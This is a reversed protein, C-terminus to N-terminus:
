NLKNQCMLEIMMVSKSKSGLDDVIVNISEVICKSRLFYVRYARSKSSYELFIWEKSKSDFKGLNEHDKLVRFYKVIPKKGKWLEYCTNRTHPHMHIRNSTYCTTNIDEVWFHTPLEHQNLMTRSMEQLVCSKREVVENQQPTKLASFEHKIGLSHCFELFDFNDFERRRDGKIIDIPYGKENQIKLGIDKFTIFAETKDRLFVVWAYRSYDDVMVLIYKKDGLSETRMPGMLDM